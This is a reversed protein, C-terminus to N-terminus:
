NSTTSVLHLQPSWFHNNKANFKIFVHEDLRNVLFPDHGANEFKKLIDEKTEVVDLQFRPRLIIENPLPKM